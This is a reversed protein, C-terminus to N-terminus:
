PHVEFGAEKKQGGEGCAKELLICFVSSAEPLGGWMCVCVCVCTHICTYM